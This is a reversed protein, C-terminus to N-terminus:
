SLEIDFDIPDILEITEINDHTKGHEHVKPKDGHFLPIERKNKDYTTNGLSKAFDSHANNGPTEM